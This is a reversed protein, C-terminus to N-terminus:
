ASRRAVPFSKRLDCNPSDFEEARQGQQLDGARVSGRGQGQDGRAPLRNNEINLTIESQAQAPLVMSALLGAGAVAWGVRLSVYRKM